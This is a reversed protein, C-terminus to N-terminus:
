PAASASSSCGRNKEVFDVVAPALVADEQSFEVIIRRHGVNPVEVLRSASGSSEVAEHLLAAQRHLAEHEKEAFFVLFPPVDAKTEAGNAADGGLFALASAREQWDDATRFTAEYFDLDAGLQYTREDALDYGAGSIAVVGCLRDRVDSPLPWDGLAAYTVLQAGASHGSLFISGPDGGHSEIENAVWGIASAVDEVQERWDVAPQLRYSVVAVGIGKSAYFRGINGYVDQGGVILDKDGERWSGGHVFLLTPWGEGEPRFVNLRHKVPDAQEGELYAVNELVREEPWPTPDFLLRMGLREFAACGTLLLALSSAVVFKTLDRMLPAM